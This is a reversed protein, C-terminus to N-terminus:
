REPTLRQTQGTLLSSLPAGPLLPMVFYPKTAGGEEFEGIDYIDVINPHNLSALVACERRFLDLVTRDMADRITKLAVERRLDNDLARYVVGMGGKGLVDLLQYRGKVSPM